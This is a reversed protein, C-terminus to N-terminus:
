KVSENPIIKFSNGLASPRPPIIPPINTNGEDIPGGNECGLLVHIGPTSRGWGGSISCHGGECVGFSSFIFEYAGPIHCGTKTFSFSVTFDGDDAWGEASHEGLCVADGEGDVTVGYNDDLYASGALKVGTPLTGRYFPFNGVLDLGMEAETKGCIAVFSTSPARPPANSTSSDVEAGGASATSATAIIIIVFLLVVAALGAALQNGPIRKGGIFVAFQAAEVSQKRSYNADGSAFESPAAGAEQGEEGQPISTEIRSTVGATAM